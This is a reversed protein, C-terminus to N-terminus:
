RTIARHPARSWWPPTAALTACVRDWDYAHGAPLPERPAILGARHSLLWRVPIDQKGAQAFEPGTDRSRRM